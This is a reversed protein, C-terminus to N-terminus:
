PKINNNNIHLTIICKRQRRILKESLIAVRMSISLDIDTKENNQAFAISGM